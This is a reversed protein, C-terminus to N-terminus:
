APRLNRQAKAQALFGCVADLIEIFVPVTEACRVMKGPVCYGQGGPDGAQCLCQLHKRLGKAEARSIFHYSCPGAAPKVRLKDAGGVFEALVIAEPVGYTLCRM